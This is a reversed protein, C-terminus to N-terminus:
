IMLAVRRTKLSRRIDRIMQYATEERSLLAKHSVDPISSQEQWPMTQEDEWRQQSYPKQMVPMMLMNLVDLVEEVVELTLRLKLIPYGELSSFCVRLTLLPLEPVKSTTDSGLIGGWPPSAAMAADFTQQIAGLRATILELVRVYCSYIILTTGPDLNPPGGAFGQGPLDSSSTGHLERLAQVFKVALTVTQDFGRKVRCFGPIGSTAICDDNTPIDTPAPAPTDNMASNAHEFLQVNIAVLDQLWHATSRKLRSQGQPGQGTDYAAAISSMGSPWDFGTTTDSEDSPVAAAQTTENGASQMWGQAEDAYPFPHPSPETPTQAQGGLRDGLHVLANPTMKTGLVSSDSSVGAGRGPVHRKPRERSVAGTLDPLPRSRRNRLSPSSTCPTKAKTCRACSGNEERHCSLKQAHCRDCARRLVPDPM